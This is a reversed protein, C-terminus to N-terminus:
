FSMAYPNYPYDKFAWDKCSKTENYNHSDEDLYPVKITNSYTSVVILDDGNELLDVLTNYPFNGKYKTETNKTKNIVIYM